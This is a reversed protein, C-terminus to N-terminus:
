LINRQGQNELGKRVWSGFQSNPGPNPNNCYVEKELITEYVGASICGNSDVGLVLKACRSECTCCGGGRVVSLRPLIQHLVLGNLSFCLSKPTYHGPNPTFVLYKSRFYFCPFCVYRIICFCIKIINAM